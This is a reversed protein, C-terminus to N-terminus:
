DAVGHVLADCGLALDEIVGPPTAVSANPKRYRVVRAVAHRDVLAKELADLVASAMHKSNDVLAVTMGKLSPLRPAINSQRVADEAAPNVIIM